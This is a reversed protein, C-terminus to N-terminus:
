FSDYRQKWCDVCLPVSVQLIQQKRTYGGEREALVTDDPSVDYSLLLLM